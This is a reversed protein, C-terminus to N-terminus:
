GAEPFWDAETQPGWWGFEGVTLGQSAQDVTKPDPDMWAFVGVDM